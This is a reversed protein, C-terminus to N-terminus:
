STLVWEILRTFTRINASIAPSANLALWAVCPFSVVSVITSLLIAASVQQPSAEYRQALVYINGASPLGAILVGVNVWFADLHMIRGLTLWVLM